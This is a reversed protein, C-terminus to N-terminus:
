QANQTIAQFPLIKHSKSAKLPTKAEEELVELFVDVVESDFQSGKNARLENRITTPDLPARYARKSNMLDSSCM